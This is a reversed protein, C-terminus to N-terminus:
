VLQKLQKFVETYHKENNRAEVEYPHKNYGVKKLVLKYENMNQLYHTYEHLITQVLLKVSFAHARNIVIKNTGCVFMGYYKRDPNNIVSITPVKKYKHVGFKAICYMLTLSSIEKVKKLPLDQTNTKLFITKNMKMSCLYSLIRVHCFSKYTPPFLRCLYSIYEL